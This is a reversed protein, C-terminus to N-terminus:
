HNKSLYIVGEIFVFVSLVFVFVLGRQRPKRGHGIRKGGEGQDGGVSWNKRRKSKSNGLM